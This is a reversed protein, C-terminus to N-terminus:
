RGFQKGLRLYVLGRECRVHGLGLGADPEVFMHFAVARGDEGMGALKAQFADDRLALIGGVTGAARRVPEFHLVRVRWGHLPLSLFIPPLCLRYLVSATLPIPSTKSLCLQFKLTM